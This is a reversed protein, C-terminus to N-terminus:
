IIKKFEAIASLFASIVLFTEVGYYFKPWMWYVAFVIVCEFPIKYLWVDKDSLSHTMNV